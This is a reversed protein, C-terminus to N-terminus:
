KSLLCFHTQTSTNIKAPVEMQILQFSPTESSHTDKYKNHGYCLCIKVVVCKANQTRTRDIYFTNKKKKKLFPRTQWM